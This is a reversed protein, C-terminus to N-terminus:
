WHTYVPSPALLSSSALIKKTIDLLLGLPCPSVNFYLLNWKLMLIFTKLTLIIFFQCANALSTTSDGDKSIKWVQRSVARLLRSYVLRSQAVTNSSILGLPGKWGRGTIRHFLSLIYSAKECYGVLVTCSKWFYIALKSLKLLCCWSFQQKVTARLLQSGARM